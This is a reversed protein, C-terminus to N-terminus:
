MGEISTRTFTLVALIILLFLSSCLIWIFRGPIIGQWKKLLVFGLLSILLGAFFLNRGFLANASFWLSPHTEIHDSHYGYVENMQVLQLWLPLAFGALILGTCGVVKCIIANLQALAHNRLDAATFNGTTNVTKQSL